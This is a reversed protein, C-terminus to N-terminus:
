RQVETISVYEPYGSGIEKLSLAVTRTLLDLSDAVEEPWSVRILPINPDPDVECSLDRVEAVDSLGLLLGHVLVSVAACVVDQGKPASGSHGLSELGVLASGGWYLTVRVM